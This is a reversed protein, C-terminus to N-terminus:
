PCAAGVTVAVRGQPNVDVTRGPINNNAECLDLADQENNALFGTNLFIFRALQGAILTNGGELAPRQQLVVDAGNITGLGDNDVFVVWGGHWNTNGNQSRVTVPVGRKLAESKAYALALVFDNAQTTMRSNLIFDRFSPVGLTLLIALIAITILLEIM